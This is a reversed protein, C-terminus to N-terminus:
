IDALAKALEEKTAYVEPEEALHHSKYAEHVQVAAWLAKDEDGDQLAAQYDLFQIYQWVDRLQESRLQKLAATLMDLTVVKDDTQKLQPFTVQDM